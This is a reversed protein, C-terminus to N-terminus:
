LQGHGDDTRLHWGANMPRCSRERRVGTTVVLTVNITQWRLSQVPRTRRGSTGTPVPVLGDRRRCTVSGSRTLSMALDLSQSGEDERRSGVLTAFDFASLDPRSFSRM